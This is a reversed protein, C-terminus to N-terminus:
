ATGKIFARGRIGLARLRSELTSPKVGLLDAAGGAGYVRGSAHNLAAEVNKRERTRWEHEPIIEDPVPPSTAVAGDWAERDPFLELPLVGGRSLIVAREIVNQLERVNGPWDYATLAECQERTIRPAPVDFKRAALTVFQGALLAIDEKRARLPPLHITFVSLRYYLDGRFHGTRVEAPLDRNTATIVRVDLQRTTDDGVREYRGEQLIRLLKPQVDLPLDGIEELLITGHNALHFRGPRDRLAGTFAGQLHGFFESEFLERPVASCNVTVLPRQARRSIEHIHRAVLEKGTGSEGMLLVTADTPAVLEAQALVKRLAPGQGLIREPPVTECSSRNVFSGHKRPEGYRIAM